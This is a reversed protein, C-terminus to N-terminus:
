NLSLSLWISHVVFIRPYYRPGNVFNRGRLCTIVVQTCGDQQRSARLASLAFNLGPFLIRIAIDSSLSIRVGDLIDLGLLNFKRISFDCLQRGVCYGLGHVRRAIM